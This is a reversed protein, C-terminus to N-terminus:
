RHYKGEIVDVFHSPRVLWELNAVFAPRESTGAVKGTLFNSGGVYKFFRTWWDLGESITKYGKSKGNAVAKERWRSRLAVQRADNWELVRPNSPLLDHYLAIIKEHPCPLVHDVPVVTSVSTGNPVLSSTLVDADTYADAHAVDAVSLSSERANAVLQSANSKKSEKLVREEERQKKARERDAERKQEMSIMMKYKAHNVIIWGWPRHNDMLIIRRGDEGPTRTYPDPESLVEIGKTLIELPISTRAAMAQPTMDVVGDSNCLVIMQQLTVIAQWHGYLTGEYISDFIKGYM